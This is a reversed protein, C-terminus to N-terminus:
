TGGQQAIEPISVKKNAWKLIVPPKFIANIFGSPDQSKNNKLSKLTSTLDADSWDRDKRTKLYNFRRNWLEVKGYYNDTLNPLIPRHKLREVYTDLFLNKLASPATILNGLIDVKAM